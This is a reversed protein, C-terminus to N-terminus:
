GNGGIVNVVTAAFSFGAPAFTLTNNTGSGNNNVDFSVTANGVGGFGDGGGFTVSSNSRLQVTAGTNLTLRGSNNAGLAASVNSGNTNTASALLQLIQGSNVTVAGTFTNSGSLTLTGTGATTLGGGAGSINGGLTINGGGSTMTITRVATTTILDNITELSTSSNTINGTLTFGNTGVTNPNITFAAAGSNFTIGAVNFTAPTMLDDTLTTGAVGTTSTFVLSDNSAPRGGTGAGGTWNSTGSWLSSASGNWAATAAIASSMGTLLGLALSVALFRLALYKTLKGNRPYQSNKRM